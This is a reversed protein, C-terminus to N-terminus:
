VKSYQRQALVDAYLNPLSDFLRGCLQDARAIDACLLTGHVRPIRGHDPGASSVRIPRDFLSDGAPARFGPRELFGGTGVGPGLGNGKGPGTGFTGQGGTGKPSATGGTAELNEVWKKAQEVQEKSSEVLGDRYKNVTSCFNIVAFRDEKNLNKLCYNLAKRAQEMKVGRMSGSTDLVLVM